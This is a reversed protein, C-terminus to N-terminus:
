SVRQDLGLRGAHVSCALKPLHHAVKNTERHKFQVKWTPRQHMLAKIDVLLPYIASYEDEKSNAASVVYKCDGEFIGETIGLDQCLLMATRLPAYAEAIAPQYLLPRNCCSSAQIEGKFDRIITGLGTSQNKDDM